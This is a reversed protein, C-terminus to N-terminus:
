FLLVNEQNQYLVFYQLNICNQRLFYIPTEGKNKEHKNPFCSRRNGYFTSYRTNPLIKSCFNYMRRRDGVIM